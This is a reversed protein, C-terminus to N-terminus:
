FAPIEVPRLWSLDASGLISGDAAVRDIAVPSAPGRNDSTWLFAGNVIAVENARGERTRIRLSRTRSDALGYVVYGSREGSDSVLYAIGDPNFSAACGTVQESQFRAPLEYVYCFARGDENPAISVKGVRADSVVQRAKSLEVKAAQTDGQTVAYNAQDRLMKAHVASPRQTTTDLAALASALEVKSDQSGAPNAPSSSAANLGIASAMVMLCAASTTRKKM